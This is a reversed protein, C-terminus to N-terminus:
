VVYKEKVLDIKLFALIKGLHDFDKILFKVFIGYGFIPSFIFLFPIGLTYISAAVLSILLSKSKSKSINLAMKGRLLARKMMVKKEWRKPPITEYVAAEKCWVFVYGRDIMRRFFDRDEGGSGFSPNFWDKNKIFLDRKLFVNGTRTNKWGLVYGTPHNPREFFGGKIVWNPPKKNFHALVPGFVGDSIHRNIALYLKLLWESDPLEDDDIFSIFDGKANEIAKNRAVAINQQPEVHYNITINSEGKHSKVTHRASETRDNDVIVLSYNFLDKTEQKALKKLLNNLQQPRKYTCICVCIHHKQFM